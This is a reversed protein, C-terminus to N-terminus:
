HYELWIIAYRTEPFCM